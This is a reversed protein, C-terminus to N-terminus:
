LKEGTLFPLAYKSCSDLQSLDRAEKDSQLWHFLRDFFPILKTETVKHQDGKSFINGLDRHFRSIGWVMYIPGMCWVRNMWIPKGLLLLFTNFFSIQLWMLQILWILCSFPPRNFCDVLEFMHIQPVVKLSDTWGPSLPDRSYGSILLFWWSVLFNTPCCKIVNSFILPVVFWM